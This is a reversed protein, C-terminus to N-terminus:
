MSSLVLYCASFERTSRDPQFPKFLRRCRLALPLAVTFGGLVAQCCTAATQSSNRAPILSSEPIKLVQAQTPLVPLSLSYRDHM